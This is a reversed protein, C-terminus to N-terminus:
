LSLNVEAEGEETHAICSFLFSRGSFTSSVDSVSRVEPFERLYSVLYSSLTEVDQDTCRADSILDLIENGLEANEWWDGQFLNMHDRVGSAVASLGSFLDEASIVPLIDGSADVPRCLM